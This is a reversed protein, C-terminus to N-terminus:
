TTAKDEVDFQGLCEPCLLLSERHTAERYRAVGGERLCYECRPRADPPFRDQREVIIMRRKTAGM